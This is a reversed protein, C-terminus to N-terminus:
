ADYKRIAEEVRAQDAPPLGGNARLAKLKDGHTAPHTVQM